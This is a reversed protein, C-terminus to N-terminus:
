ETENRGNLEDPRFAQSDELSEGKGWEYGGSQKWEFIVTVKDLFLDSERQGQGETTEWWGPSIFIFIRLM